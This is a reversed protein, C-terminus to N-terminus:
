VCIIKKGLAVTSVIFQHGSYSGNESISACILVNSSAKNLTTAGKSFHLMSTLHIHQCKFEEKKEFSSIMPKFKPLMLKNYIKVIFTMIILM